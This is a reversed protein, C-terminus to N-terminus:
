IQSCMGQNTVALFSICNEDTDWVNLIGVLHEKGDDTSVRKAEFEDIKVFPRPKIQILHEITMVKIEADSLAVKAHLSLSFFGGMSLAIFLIKSM